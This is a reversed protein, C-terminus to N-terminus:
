NEIEQGIYRIHGWLTGSTLLQLPFVAVGGPGEAYIANNFTDSLGLSFMGTYGAAYNYVGHVEGVFPNNISKKVKYPLNIKIQGTGSHATWVVAYWFDVLLGKRLYWGDQVTYTGTGDTTMGAVVPLFQRIDGNISQSIDQYSRSLTTVLERVYSAIQKPDATELREENLPLILEIPLTM